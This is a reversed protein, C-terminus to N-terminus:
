LGKTVRELRKIISFVFIASMLSTAILIGYTQWLELNAYPISIFGSLGNGIATAGLWGGQMLGRYQPPSVKAVFSLGMPSLCLEAVTLVFYTSILWYPGVLMPSVGGLNELSSPSQLGTSALIMIVYAAATLLMGIGIKKPSSPEMKKKNLWAFVGIVIPTLFVVFIPNFSQFLEATIANSDSFSNVRLYTVVVGAVLLGFGVAKMKGVFRKGVIFVLGIVGAIVALFAPLDFFIKDFVGVEGVTYDKAFWTQVLGNQHFAMWFFIVATFVLVLAIIREKTQAPTLVQVNEGSDKKDAHRYDAHKYYKKFVIFIILSVIMSLAAVAFGANYSSSLVETYHNAFEALSMSVEGMQQKAIETFKDVNELKGNLFSHCMGPLNKDYILNEQALIWDRLFTAAYPAFFAGINIGMYFINFAADQMKKYGQEEYLNGLIVVVNGKFLGTGLAITFLSAYLMGESSGPIALAAYGIFMVVIGMTIVKGYGIKDALVGGLLPLAYIATLFGSWILGMSEKGIGLKAELFLVFIAMMTYYGFREGMNSLFLVALGKPHNKLM